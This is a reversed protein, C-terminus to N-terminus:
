HFSLASTMRKVNFRAKMVSHLHSCSQFSMGFSSSLKSYYTFNDPLSSTLSMAFSCRPYM